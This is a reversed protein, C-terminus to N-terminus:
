LISPKSFPPLCFNPNANTPNKPLFQYPVTNMKYANIYHTIRKITESNETYEM